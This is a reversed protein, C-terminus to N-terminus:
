YHQVLFRQRGLFNGICKADGPAVGASWDGNADSLVIQILGLDDEVEVQSGFHAIVLGETESGLEGAGLQESIVDEKKRARDAKEQQIKDIRWAQRRSLKRKAM